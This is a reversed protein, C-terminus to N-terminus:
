IPSQWIAYEMEKIWPKERHSAVKLYQVTQAAEGASEFHDMLWPRLLVLDKIAPVIRVRKSTVAM